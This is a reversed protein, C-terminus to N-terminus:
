EFSGLVTEGLLLILRLRNLRARLLTIGHQQLPIRQGM